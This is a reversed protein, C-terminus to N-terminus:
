DGKGPPQDEWILLFSGKRIRTRIQGNKDKQVNGASDVVFHCLEGKDTDLWPVLRHSIPKGTSRDLIEFKHGSYQPDSFNYRPM